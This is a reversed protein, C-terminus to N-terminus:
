KVISFFIAKSIKEGVYHDQVESCKNFSQLASLPLRQPGAPGHTVACCVDAPSYYGQISMLAVTRWMRTEACTSIFPTTLAVLNLPFFSLPFSVSKKFNHLVKRLDSPSM